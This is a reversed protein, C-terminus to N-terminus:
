LLPIAWQVHYLLDQKPILYLDTARIYNITHMITLSTHLLRFTFRCHRANKRPWKWQVVWATAPKIESIKLCGTSEVVSPQVRTIFYFSVNSLFLDLIIKSESLPIIGANFGWGAHIYSYSRSLNQHRSIAWGPAMFKLSSFIVYRPNARLCWM